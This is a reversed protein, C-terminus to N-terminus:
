RRRVRVYAKAVTRRKGSLLLRAMRRGRTHLRVRIVAAGRADTRVRRGAFIVRARALPRKGAADSV